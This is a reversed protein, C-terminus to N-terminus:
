RMYRSARHKICACIPGYPKKNSERILIYHEEKYYNKIELTYKIHYFYKQNEFNNNEYYICEM